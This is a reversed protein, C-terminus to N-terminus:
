YNTDCDEINATPDYTLGDFSLGDGDVDVCFTLSVSGKITDSTTFVALGAADTKVTITEVLDESFSGTVSAGEVPNGLDDLVVVEAYGKKRGKSLSLHSVVISEVHMSVPGTVAQVTIMVVANDTGGNGDDATYVFSDVGEFSLDPTYNFSGDAALYSGDAALNLSGNSPVSVLAATLQDGDADVDNALVGAGGVELSSNPEISYNDGSAVPADPLPSVTIRVTAVASDAIGDSVTYTFSDSGFFDPDPSYGFSGDKSLNLTGSSPGAVLIAMLADSDADSDNGLVGPWPEFFSGDEVVAYSDDVAIPSTNPSTVIGTVLVEDVEASDKGSNGSLRFRLDFSASPLTIQLANSAWSPASGETKEIEVWNSGDDLSYEAFFFEGSNLRNIRRRYSIDVTNA